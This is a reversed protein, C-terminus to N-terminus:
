LLRMAMSLPPPLTVQDRARARFSENQFDMVDGELRVPSDASLETEGVLIVWDGHHSISFNVDKLHAPSILVPRTSESCDFVLDEWHCHHHATFFAYIMLRGVLARRQDNEDRHRLLGDTETRPLFNLLNSLPVYNNTSVEEDTLSTVLPAINELSLKQRIDFAWRALPM